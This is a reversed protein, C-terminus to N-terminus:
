GISIAWASMACRKGKSAGCGSCVGSRQRRGLILVVQNRDRFKKYDLLVFDDQLDALSLIGQLQEPSM